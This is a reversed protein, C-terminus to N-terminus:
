STLAPCARIVLIDDRIEDPDLHLGAWCAMAALLNFAGHPACRVDSTFPEGADLRDLMALGAAAADAAHQDSGALVPKGTGSVFAEGLLLQADGGHWVAFRTTVTVAPVTEALLRLMWSGQVLGTALVGAGAGASFPRNGEGDRAKGLSQWGDGATSPVPVAMPSELLLIAPRGSDIGAALAAVATAPDTGQDALDRDPADFAAWAFKSPRQVSGIDM